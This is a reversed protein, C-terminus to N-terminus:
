RWTIRAYKPKRDLQDWPSEPAAQKRVVAAPKLDFPGRLDGLKGQLIRIAAEEIKRDYVPRDGSASAPGAAAMTVIAIAASAFLRHKASM